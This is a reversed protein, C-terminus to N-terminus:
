VSSAIMEEKSLHELSVDNNLDQIDQLDVKGNALQSRLKENQEKLERILTETPDQNVSATTRIEKARDAAYILFVM